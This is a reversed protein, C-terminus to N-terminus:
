KDDGDNSITVETNNHKISATGGADIAKIVSGIALSGNIEGAAILVSNDIHGTPPVIFGATLLLLAATAFILFFLNNALYNRYFRKM